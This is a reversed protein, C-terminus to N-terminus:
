HVQASDIEANELSTREDASPGGAEGTGVHQKDIARIAAECICLPLDTGISAGCHLFDGRQLFDVFAQPSRWGAGEGVFAFWQDDALPLLTVRMKEAVAAAWEMERSYSKLLRKTGDPLKEHLTKNTAWVEHGFIERAIRTDLERGPRM